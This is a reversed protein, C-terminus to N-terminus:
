GSRFSEMRRLLTQIINISSPRSKQYAKEVSFTTNLLCLFNIKKWRQLSNPLQNSESVTVQLSIFPNPEFKSLLHKFYPVQWCHNSNTILPSREYFYWTLILCSLLDSQIEISFSITSERKPFYIWSLGQEFRTDYGFYCYQYGNISILNKIFGSRDKDEPNYEQIGM